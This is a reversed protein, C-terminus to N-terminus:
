IKDKVLKLYFYHIVRKYICNSWFYDFFLGCLFMGGVQAESNCMYQVAFFYQKRLKKAHSKVIPDM